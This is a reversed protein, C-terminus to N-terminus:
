APKDPQRPQFEGCWDHEWVPPSVGCVPNLGVERRWREFNISPPYRRCFGFKDGDIVDYDDRDYFRCKACCEDPLEESM